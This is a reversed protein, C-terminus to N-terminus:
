LSVTDQIAERVAVRTLDGTAQGGKFSLCAPNGWHSCHVTSCVVCARILQIRLDSKRAHSLLCTIRIYLSLSGCEM